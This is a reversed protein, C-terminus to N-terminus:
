KESKSKQENLNDYKLNAMKQVVKLTPTLDKPHMECLSIIKKYTEIADENRNLREQCFAIQQRLMIQSRYTLDFKLAYNYGEIAQELYEPLAHDTSNLKTEL